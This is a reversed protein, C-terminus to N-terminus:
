LNCYRVNSWLRINQYDLLSGTMFQQCMDRCPADPSPDLVHTKLSWQQCVQLLM